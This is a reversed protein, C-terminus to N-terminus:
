NMQIVVIRNPTFREPDDVGVLANKIGHYDFYETSDQQYTYSKNKVNEKRIWFGGNIGLM